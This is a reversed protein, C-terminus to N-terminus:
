QPGDARERFVVAFPEGDKGTIEHKETKRYEPACRDLLETVARTDGAEALQWLKSLWRATRRPRARAVRDALEAPAGRQGKLWRGWTDESIGAALCADKDTLGAAIGGLVEKETEKSYARAGPRAM